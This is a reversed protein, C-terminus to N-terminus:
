LDSQGVGQRAALLVLENARRCGLAEMMRARHTEVTKVSIGLEAGIEKSSLGRGIMGLIQRQRNSLSEVGAAKPKGLLPAMMRSSLRPSLFVEGGAATRLALELELPAADKVVFGAAGRELASRVHQADDHMSMILVRTVPLEARIATMAEIGSRGPLSLDMLVVDPRHILALDLAEDARSAEACVDVGAFGQLLRALGARVLTHDDVILVRVLRDRGAVPCARHVFSVGLRDPAARPDSRLLLQRRVRALNEM